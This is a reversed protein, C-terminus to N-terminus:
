FNLKYLVFMSGLFSLKSTKIFFYFYFTALLETCMCLMYFRYGTYRHTPHGPCSSDTDTGQIGTPLTGLAPATQIQLRTKILDLPHMISAEVCGSCWCSCNTPHLSKLVFAPVKWTTGFPWLVGIGFKQQISNKFKACPKWVFIKSM